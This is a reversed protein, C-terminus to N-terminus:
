NQMALSVLTHGRKLSYFEELDQCGTSLGDTQHSIRPRRMEWYEPLLPQVHKFLQLIPQLFVILLLANICKEPLFPSAPYPPGKMGALRRELRRNREVLSVARTAPRLGDEGKFGAFRSPSLRRRSLRGAPM